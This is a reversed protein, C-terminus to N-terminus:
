HNRHAHVLFKEVTLWLICPCGELMVGLASDTTEVFQFDHCYLTGPVPEDAVQNVQQRLTGALLATSTSSGSGLHRTAERRAMCGSVKERMRASRFLLPRTRTFRLLSNIESGM